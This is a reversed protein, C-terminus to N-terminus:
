MTRRIVLAQLCIVPLLQKRPTTAVPSRGAGKDPHIQPEGASTQGLNQTGAPRAEIRRKFPAGVVRCRDVPQVIRGRRGPQLREARIPDIPDKEDGTGTLTQHAKMSGLQESQEAARDLDHIGLDSVRAGTRLAPELM